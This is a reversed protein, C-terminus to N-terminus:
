KAATCSQVRRRLDEGDEEEHGGSAMHAGKRPKESAAAGAMERIQRWLAPDAVEMDNGGAVVEPSSGRYNVPTKGGGAPHATGCTGDLSSAVGHESSSRKNNLTTTTAPKHNAARRNRPSPRPPVPAAPAGRAESSEGWAYPTAPPPPPAAKIAFPSLPMGDSTGSGGSKGGDDHAVNAKKPAESIHPTLVNINKSTVSGDSETVVELVRPDHPHRNNANIPAQHSGSRTLDTDRHNSARHGSKRSTLPGASKHSTLAALPPRPPPAHGDASHANAREADVAMVAQYAATRMSGFRSSGAMSLGRQGGLSTRMQGTGSARANRSGFLLNGGLSRRISVAGLGSISSNNGTSNRSTRDNISVNRSNALSIARSTCTSEPQPMSLVLRGSETAEGWAGWQHTCDLPNDSFMQLSPETDYRLMDCFEKYCIRGDGDKDVEALIRDVNVQSVCVCVCMCLCAQYCLQYLYGTAFSCTLMRIHM